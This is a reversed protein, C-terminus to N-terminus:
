VNFFFWYHGIGSSDNARWLYVSTQIKLTFQLKGQSLKALVVASSLWEDNLCEFLVLHKKKSRFHLGYCLHFLMLLLLSHFSLFCSNSAALTGHAERILTPYQICHPFPDRKIRDTRQRASSEWNWPLLPHHEWMDYCQMEPREAASFRSQLTQEWLQQQATNLFQKNDAFHHYLLSCNDGM